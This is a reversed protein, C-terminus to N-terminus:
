FAGIIYKHKMKKTGKIVFGASHYFRLIIIFLELYSNTATVM